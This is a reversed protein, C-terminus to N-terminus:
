ISPTPTVSQTPTVTPTVSQTISPTPTPTPTVCKQCNPCWFDFLNFKDKLIRFNHQIQPASLPEIYMRFQSIGGMFTGAFNPEMIIDTTLGSLSSGSLTQNPMLEPDQIYPGELSTCGSFILSERLGQTGGGLSINFPVGIQKEKETNLEHPIIEEFDEITMFRYGNIYIYLDGLRNKTNEFWKENIKINNRVKEKSSGEHTQPPMILNYTAGEIESKFRETRVDGLGGINLLDCDEYTQYRSFVASVMVWQESTGNTCSSYSCDDYISKTSCTEVVTYGTTYTLGTNECTGTTECGGTFKLYKVCIKPNEADGSLRLAIANSFLDLDPDQPQTAGSTTYSKCTGINHTTTTATQPYVIICDSDTVGTDSCACTKICDTLTSTSRTYGTDTKPSGSAPHYYKNEARAGMFFFTGSNEPYVDNLYTQGTTISNEDEKRPKLLFETTWGKNFREPLVEYDYGSLKYFGQYFGGYLENYYGITDGTKSIINYITQKTNASFRVNPSNTFGTIPHM